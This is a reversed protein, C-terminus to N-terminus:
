GTGGTLIVVVSGAVTVLVSAVTYSVAYSPAPEKSDAARRLAVLAASSTM